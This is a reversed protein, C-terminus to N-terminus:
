IELVINMKCFFILSQNEDFTSKQISSLSSNIQSANKTIRRLVIGGVAFFMNFKFYLRVSCLLHIMIVLISQVRLLINFQGSYTAVHLIM